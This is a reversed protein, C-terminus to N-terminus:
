GGFVIDLGELFCVIFVTTIMAFFIANQWDKDRILLIGISWICFIIMLGSILILSIFAFITGGKQTQLNHRFNDLSLWKSNDTWWMKSNKDWRVGM